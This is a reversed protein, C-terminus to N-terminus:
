GCSASSTTRTPGIGSQAPGTGSSTSILRVPTWGSRASRSAGPSRRSSEARVWPSGKADPSDLFLVFDKEHLNRMVEPQVVEGGTLQVTDLFPVCRRTWLFGEIEEAVQEADSRRYSIFVQRRKIFSELGLYGFVSELFRASGGPDVGMANRSRLFELEQPISSFHFTSVQDVVPVLPFDKAAMRRGYDVLAPDSLSCASLVYLVVVPEWPEPEPRDYVIDFHAGEPRLLAVAQDVIQQGDASHAIIVRAM